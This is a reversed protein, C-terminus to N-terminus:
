PNWTSGDWMAIRNVTVGGATTFQGGAYVVSGAYSAVAVANVQGNLGTDLPEWVGAQIGGPKPGNASSAALAEGSPQSGAVLVLSAALLVVVCLAATLRYYTIRLGYHTIHTRGPMM